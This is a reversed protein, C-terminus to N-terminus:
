PNKRKNPKKSKKFEPQSETQRQKTKSQESFNKTKKFGNAAKAM